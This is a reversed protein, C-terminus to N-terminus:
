FKGRFQTPFGHEPVPPLCVWGVPRTQPELSFSLYGHGRGKICTGLGDGPFFWGESLPAPVDPHGCASCLPLRRVGCMFVLEFHALPRFLLWSRVPLLSVTFSADPLWPM